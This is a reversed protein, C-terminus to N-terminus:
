IGIHISDYNETKEDTEEKSPSIRPQLFWTKNMQADGTGLEPGPVTMLIISSLRYLGEHSTEEMLQLEWYNCLGKIFGGVEAGM